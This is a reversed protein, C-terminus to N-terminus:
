LYLEVTDTNSSQYLWLTKTCIRGSWDALGLLGRIRLGHRKKCVVATNVMGLVATATDIL